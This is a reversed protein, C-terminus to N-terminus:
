CFIPRWYSVCCRCWRYWSFYRMRNISFIPLKNAVPLKTPETELLVVIEVEGVCKGFIIPDAWETLYIYAWEWDLPDTVAWSALSVIDDEFELAHVHDVTAIEFLKGFLWQEFLMDSWLCVFWIDVEMSCNWWRSCTVLMKFLLELCEAVQLWDSQIELM